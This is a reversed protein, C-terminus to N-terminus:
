DVVTFNIERNQLDVSDVSVTVRDGLAYARHTRRGILRYMPAEYSYYDGHLSEVRVLGEITNEIEAFFGFSTVGSIIGGYTEGVHYTM